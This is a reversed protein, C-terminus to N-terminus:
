GSDRRSREELGTGSREGWCGSGEERIFEISYSVVM